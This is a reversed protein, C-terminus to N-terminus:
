AILRIAGAPPRRCLILRRAWASCINRSIREPLHPIAAEVAKMMEEHPEGVAVGGIAFAEFGLAVMDEASQKRLDPFSAGQVIGWLKQGPNIPDGNDM